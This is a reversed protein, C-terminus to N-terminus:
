LTHRHYALSYPVPTSIFRAFSVRLVRVSVLALIVTGVETKRVIAKCQFRIEAIPPQHVLRHRLSYTICPTGSVVSVPVEKIIKGSAPPGNSRTAVILRVVSM